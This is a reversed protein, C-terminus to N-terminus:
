KGGGASKPFARELLRNVNEEDYSMSNNAMLSAIGHVLMFRQLFEDRVRESPLGSERTLVGILPALADNDALDPITQRAFHDSQFLLRFIHKEKAAFRIYALGIERMPNRMNEGMIYKTHYDDAREYLDERLEDMTKYYYLIPQTSCKLRAALARANVGEIGSEKLIEFAADLIMEKSIRAKPPM